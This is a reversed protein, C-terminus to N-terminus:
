RKKFIKDNSQKKTMIPSSTFKLINSITKENIEFDKSLLKSDNIEYFKTFHSSRLRGPVKVDTSMENKIYRLNEQQRIYSATEQISAM